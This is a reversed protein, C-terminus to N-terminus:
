VLGRAPVLMVLASVAVVGMVLGLFFPSKYSFRHQYKKKPDKSGGSGRNPDKRDPQAKLEPKTEDDDPSPLQIVNM